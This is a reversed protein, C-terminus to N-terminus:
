GQEVFKRAAATVLERNKDSSEHLLTAPSRDSLMPNMGVLWNRITGTDEASLIDVIYKLNRLAAQTSSNPSRDGRAFRGIDRGDALGVAYATLKQGLIKQLEDAIQSINARAQVLSENPSHIQATANRM